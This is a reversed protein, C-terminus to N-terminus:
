KKAKDAKEIKHLLGSELEVLEKVLAPNTKLDDAKYETGLHNFQRALVKYQEKEHSVVVAQSIDQGATANALQETLDSILEQATGTDASLAEIQKNREDLLKLAEDLTLEKNTAM